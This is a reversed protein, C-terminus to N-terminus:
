FEELVLLEESFLGTVLNGTVEPALFGEELVM